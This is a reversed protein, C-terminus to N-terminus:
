SLEIQYFERKGIKVLTKDELDLLVDEDTMKVDNLYVGGQKILRRYESKSKEPNLQSLLELLNMKPQKLKIIPIENPLGGKSFVSLFEDLAKQAATEDYYMSVIKKALLIKVDRPNGGLRMTEEYQKVAEESEDTILTFYRLILSDPISMTKGFMDKPSDNLAIYNGLSKSMKKVGDLGELLPMTLVAQPSQKFVKMLDRGVLLNFKQDTGGLEIDPSISVSDYAQVLPYLFEILHIPANERYRKSFDERELMQSVTMQACLHLVEQFSLKNHWSGNWSVITKNKDLIKFAQEQYTKANELVEEASLRKRLINKGTPDGITATFDGIILHVTHGLDQFQRMKRLLVTHGLHIDPASPDFGAKVLLSKGQKIKEKLEDLAIVEEAGRCIIKIQEEANLM